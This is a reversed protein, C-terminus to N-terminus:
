ESQRGTYREAGLCGNGVRGFCCREVFVCVREWGVGGFGSGHCFYYGGEGGELWIEVLAGPGGNRVGGEREECGGVGGGDGDEAEGGEGLVADEGAAV